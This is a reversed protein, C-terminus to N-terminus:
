HHQLETIKMCSATLSVFALVWMRCWIFFFIPEEKHLYELEHSKKYVAKHPMAAGTGPEGRPVWLNLRM